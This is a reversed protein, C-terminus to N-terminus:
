SRSHHTAMFRGSRILAIKSMVLDRILASPFRMHNKANAASEPSAKDDAPLCLIKAETQPCYFKTTTLPYCSTLHIKSSSASFSVLLLYEQTLFCFCNSPLAPAHFVYTQNLFRGKKLTFLVFQAHSLYEDFPGVVGGPELSRPMRRRQTEPASGSIGQLPKSILDSLGVSPKVVVGVLGTGVGKAAGKWGEEKAGKVPNSILGTAGQLAGKAFGKMGEMMGSSVDKPKKEQTRQHRYDNDLSLAAVGSGLTATLKGATGFFAGITNKVLSTTGKTLGKRVEGQASDRFIGECGTKISNYIGSPAGVFETAFLLGLAQRMINSKYQRFLHTIFADRSFLLSGDEYSNLRIPADTVALMAPLPGWLGLQTRM